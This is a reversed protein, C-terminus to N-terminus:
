VPVKWCPPMERCSISTGSTVSVGFDQGCAFTYLIQSKITATNPLNFFLNYSQSYIGARQLLRGPLENEFLYTGYSFSM